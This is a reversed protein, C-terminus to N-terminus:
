QSNQYKGQPVMSTKRCAMAVRDPVKNDKLNNFARAGGVRGNIM